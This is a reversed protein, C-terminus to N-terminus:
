NLAEPEFGVRATQPRGCDTSGDVNGMTSLGHGGRGGIRRESCDSWRGFRTEAFTSPAPRFDNEANIKQYADHKIKELGFEDEGARRRLARRIGM